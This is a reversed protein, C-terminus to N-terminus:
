DADHHDVPVPALKQARLPRPFVAAGAIGTVIAAIQRRTLATKM